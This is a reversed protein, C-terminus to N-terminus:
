EDALWTKVVQAVRKPDEAVMARVADVQRDYSSDPGPLLPNSGGSLTVDAGGGAGTGLGDMGLGGGMGMDGGGMAAELGMLDEKGTDVLRKLISRLILMVVILLIFGIGLKVWDYLKENEYWEVPLEEFTQVEEDQFPQNLVTVSDGRTATYGIADKVLITIREIEADSLPKKARKSKGEEAPDPTNVWKDDVVVAVSLRQVNGVQHRTHSITRDLEYNRTAQRRVNGGGAADQALAANEGAQEPVSTAGPPQNSLAGPVGSAGDGSGSVENLTQESRVAPLDPNFSEATQEKVSFDVNASIQVKFGNQGVIPALIQAVRDHYLEELKRTYEFQKAVLALDQNRDKESLLNGRQDVVTVDKEQLESISSAVLNVIAAVQMPEIAQGPYLELLVSASPKRQDNLFVTRKPIALHVRATRVKNMSSITRAMEGEISRYYRAKEMFQSTGFAQDKDLLEYGMSKGSPFGEQALKLRADHISKAEVLLMGSNTDIKYKINERQLLDAVQGAELHSIDTYLPRYSPEQAWLVVWFGLAISAALGIMVGVQRMLALGGFGDLAAVVGSPSRAPLDNAVAEAM